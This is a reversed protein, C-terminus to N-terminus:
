NKKEGGWEGPPLDPNGVPSSFRALSGGKRNDHLYLFHFNWCGGGWSGASRRGGGGRGKGKSTIPRVEERVGPGGRWSACAFGSRGAGRRKKGTGGHFPSM